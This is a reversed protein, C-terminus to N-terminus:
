SNFQVMRWLEGQQALLDQYSGQEIIKGDLMVVITDFIPLLNLDHTAVILTEANAEILQMAQESNKTDLATTPEDLIWIHKDKNLLLRALSLRQIEGGSLTSGNYDLQRDLSIHDLGLREFVEKIEDDNSLTLLNAKVTDDFLQQQQLLGNIVRYKEEDKIDNIEQNYLKLTGNDYHYLGALLQLLTSKGSGSPGIVAVKQGKDITLSVNELVYNEQNWYKFYLNEIVYASAVSNHTLLVQNGSTESTTFVNNIDSLAQDTDAKYYAVNTMPVAQEFLTLIMLVISTLYVVDLKGNTIQIYGLFLSTFISLMAIINLMLDYRTLFRQERYQAKTYDLLEENTLQQFHGVQKFRHLEEYGEKYDYFRNLFQSQKTAVQAKLIRAKNASLWPVILLTIVMSCLILIAHATSIFYMSVMTILATLGIVIPPYYVRLYINQLAEVSSVMRSILDTSSFQRYVNPVVNVLKDFFQVRIDRLMTFTAKHSLLREIYKFIARMFGFLKVSVVLIMLAYLPAGYASKTVMYGSLFFMALAVLSGCVGVIIALILDKDSRFQLRSKM